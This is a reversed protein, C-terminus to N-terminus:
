DVIIRENMTRDFRSFSSGINAITGTAFGITLGAFFIFFVAGLILGIKLLNKM